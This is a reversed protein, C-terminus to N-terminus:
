WNKRSEGPAEENTVSTSIGGRGDPPALRQSVSHVRNLFSLFSQLCVWPRAVGREPVWAKMSGLGALLPLGSQLPPRCQPPESGPPRVLLPHPADQPLHAAAWLNELTM